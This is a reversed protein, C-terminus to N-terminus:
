ALAPFAEWQAKMEELLTEFRPNGRLLRLYPDLQAVIPYNIFGSVMAHDLWDIAELTRGMRAMAGSILWSYFSDSRALATVEPTLIQDFGEEDGDYACTLLTCVVTLPHGPSDTQMREASRRTAEDEGNFRLIQFYHFAFIPDDPASQYVPRIAEAAASFDGEFFAVWAPASRNVPTLPDIRLLADRRERARQMHGSIFYVHMLWFMADPDNPNADLARTFEEHAEAIRQELFLTLGRVRHALASNADRALAKDAFRQARSVYDPGGFGVNVYQFYAHAITALVMANDGTKEACENMLRVAEDLASQGKPAYILERARLYLNHAEPDTIRQPREPRADPASFSVALADTISRAVQEQIDLVDSVRGAYKDAWVTSENSGDILRATARFGDGEWRVSGRLAYMVDLEQCVAATDAARDELLFASNRAIVRLDPVRALDIIIEETLGAAFYLHEDDCGLNDFPLVVVSPSDGGSPRSPAAREIAGVFDNMTAQRLEPNKELGTAVAASLSPPVNANLRHLAPPEHTRIADSIENLNRGTFPAAGAILEYLVVALSWIDTREDVDRGNAQQPSIYAGTGVSGRPPTIRSEGRLLAIGFDVVKAVGDETVLINAPKIDRHVIGQAHAKALGRGAQAVLDVITALPPRQEAVYADLTPGRYFPMVIYLDGDPTEDIDHIAGVNVHELSSAARAEQVFRQKASPVKSIAPSLFKLAVSRPLKQDEAEYVTGMGGEAIKRVIRYHSVTQGIM